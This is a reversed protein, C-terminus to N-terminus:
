KKAGVAKRFNELQPDGTREMHTLLLGRLRDLEARHKADNLLNVREDADSRLDFFQEQTGVLLQQVRAKIKADSDAAKAMAQFSLGNMAEVRFQPTGNPWAHFQYSFDKTRICRQPFSKGSAVTNVHTIVFDRDPQKEGRLLPLWSRGDVGDCRPQKLVDLLTPLIDVSSVFEERRQPQGMGPWRM